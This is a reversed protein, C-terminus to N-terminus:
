ITKLLYKALTPIVTGNLTKNVNRATRALMKANKDWVFLEKILKDAKEKSNSLQVDIVRESLSKTAEAFKDYNIDIIGEPKLFGMIGKKKNKVIIVGKEIFNHIQMVSRIRHAHMTPKQKITQIENLIYSTIIQKKEANTFVGKKVLEDLSALGSM